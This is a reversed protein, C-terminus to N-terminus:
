CGCGFLNLLFFFSTATKAVCCRSLESESTGMEDRAAASSAAYYM